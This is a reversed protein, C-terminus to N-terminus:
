HEANQGLCGQYGYIFLYTCQVDLLYALEALLYVSEQFEFRHLPHLLGPLEFATHSSGCLGPLYAAM